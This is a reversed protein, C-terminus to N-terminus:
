TKSFFLYPASKQRTCYRLASIIRWFIYLLTTTLKDDVAVCRSNNKEFFNVNKSVLFFSKGSWQHGFVLDAFIPILQGHSILAIIVTIISNKKQSKWVIWFVKLLLTANLSPVSAAEVSSCLWAVGSCFLVALLWSKPFFKMHM